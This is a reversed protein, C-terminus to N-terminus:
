LSPVTRIIQTKEFKFYSSTAVLIITLYSKAVLSFSYLLFLHLRCAQPETKIKDDTLKPVMSLTQFKDLGKYLQTPGHDQDFLLLICQKCFKDGM